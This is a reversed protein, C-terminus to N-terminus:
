GSGSCSNKSFYLWTSTSFMTASSVTTDPM